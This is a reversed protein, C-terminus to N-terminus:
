KIINAKYTKFVDISIIKEPSTKQSDYNVEFNDPMKFNVSLVGDVKKLESIILFSHGSCPIDVQLNLISQQIQADVSQQNINALAPFVVFFMSLNVLITVSYLITLYKWKSKAGSFNCCKNMKLYVVASITAFVFSIAVMLSFFYPILLLNKFVQTFAVAGIVSCVVFGICFAHPFLGFLLGSWFGNKNSSKLENCCSNKNEM